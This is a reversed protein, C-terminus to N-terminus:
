LPTENIIKIIKEKTIRVATNFDNTFQPDETEVKEVEALIKKRILETYPFQTEKPM